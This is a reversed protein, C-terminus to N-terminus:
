SFCNNYYEINNEIGTVFKAEKLKLNFKSIYDPNSMLSKIFLTMESVTTFLMGIEGFKNFNYDWQNNRLALIPKQYKICDFYSGSSILSYNLDDVFSLIFSSEQILKSFLEPEVFYSGNLEVLKISDKFKVDHVRGICRIEILSEDLEKRLNDALINLLHSNKNKANVGVTSLIIKSSLAANFALKSVDTYDYPLDLHIINQIKYGLIKCLNDYVLNSLIVFKFKSKLYNNLKFNLKNILGDLRRSLNEDNVIYQLEGHLIIYIYNKNFAIITWIKLLLSSYSKTSLLFIRNPKLKYYYNLVVLLTKLILWLSSNSNNKLEIFNVNKKCYEPISDFYNQTSLFYIPKNRYSELKLLSQVVMMHEHPKRFPEIFLTM